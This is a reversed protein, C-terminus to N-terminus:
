KLLGTLECDTEGLSRRSETIAPDCDSASAHIGSIRSYLASTKRAVSDWSRTRTLFEWGEIGMQSLREPGAEVASTIAQAVSEATPSEIPIGCSSQELLEGLGGARTALIPRRNSLALAAVGSESYFDSYPLVVAHHRALLPRVDDDAIFHDIVDICEPMQAILQKCDRWYRVENATGACGAITLRIPLRSNHQLRQVARIAHAVGKNGRISGFILVRLSDFPPYPTKAANESLPGHPIVAIREPCQRFKDVLVDRGAQNHVVIFHCQGYFCELMKCEIWRLRPHLRWKHPQPDHATLVVSGGQARVLLLFVFGLPLHVPFQFHVIDGRRTLRYQAFASQAVFKLNRLIRASLSARKIIRPRALVLEVGAKRVENQYEFNAPCFLVVRAKAAALAKVLETVYSAAGHRPEPTHIIVRPKRTRDAPEDM